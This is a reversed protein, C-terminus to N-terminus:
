ADKPPAAGEDRLRVLGLDVDAIPAASTPPLAGPGAALASALLEGFPTLRYYVWVGQLGPITGRQQDLIRPEGNLEPHETWGPAYADLRAIASANLDGVLSSIRSARVGLREVLARQTLEVAGRPAQGPPLCSGRLALVLAQWQPRAGPAPAPALRAPEPAPAVGHGNGQGNTPGHGRVVQLM